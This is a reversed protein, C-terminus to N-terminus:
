QKKKFVCRHPWGLFVAIGCRPCYESVTLKKKDPVPVIKM